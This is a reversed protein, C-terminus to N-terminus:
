CFAAGAIGYTAGVLAAPVWGAPGSVGLAAAAASYLTSHGIGAATFTWTCAKPHKPKKGGVIESLQSVNLVELNEM